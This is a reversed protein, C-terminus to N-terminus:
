QMGDVLWSYTLRHLLPPLFHPAHATSWASCLMREFGEADSGLMAFIADPCIYMALSTTFFSSSSHIRRWGCVSCVYRKGSLGQQIATYIFFSVCKKFLTSLTCAYRQKNLIPGTKTKRNANWPAM